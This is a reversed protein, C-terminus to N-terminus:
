TRLRRCDLVKRARKMAAQLAIVADREDDLMAVREAPTRKLMAEILAVDEGFDRARAVADRAAAPAPPNASNALPESVRAPQKKDAM